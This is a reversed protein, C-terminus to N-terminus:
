PEHVVKFSLPEEPFASAEGSMPQEHITSAAEFSMSEEHVTSETEPIITESEMPQEVQPVTASLQGRLPLIHHPSEPMLEKHTRVDKPCLMTECDECNFKAPKEACEECQPLHTPAISLPKLPVTSHPLDPIDEEHGKVDEFCLAIGCDECMLETQKGECIECLATQIEVESTLRPKLQPKFPVIHHEADPMKDLHTKIDKPCLLAECDECKNKAVRLDCVECSIFVESASTTSAQPKFPVIRHPFDPIYKKHTNADKPCLLVDCDDCKRKAPLDECIECSLFDM